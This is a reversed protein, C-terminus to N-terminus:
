ATRQSSQDPSGRRHAGAPTSARARGPAPTDIWQSPSAPTRLRRLLLETGISAAEEVRTERWVLARGREGVKLIARWVDEHAGAQRRAANIKDVDRVDHLVVDRVIGDLEHVSDAAGRARALAAHRRREVRVVAGIQYLPQPVRERLALRNILEERPLAREAQLDLLPPLPRLARLHPERSAVLLHDLSRLTRLLWQPSYVCAPALGSPVDIFANLNAGAPLAIQNCARVTLSAFGVGSSNHGGALELM